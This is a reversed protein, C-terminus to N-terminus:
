SAIRSVELETLRQSTYEGLLRGKSIKPRIAYYHTGTCFADVLRSSNPHDVMQM